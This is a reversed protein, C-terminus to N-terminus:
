EGRIRKKAEQARKVHHAWREQIGRKTLRGVGAGGVTIQRPVRLKRKFYDNLRKVYNM